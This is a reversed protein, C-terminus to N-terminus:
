LEGQAKHGATKMKESAEEGHEYAREKEQEYKKEADTYARGGKEKVEEMRNEGWGIGDELSGRMLGWVNWLRDEVGEEVGNVIDKLKAWLADAGSQAQVWRIRTEQLLGPRATPVMDEPVGRERLYARLRADPWALYPASRAHIDTYKENALKVLEDRKVQADSSSYGQEILYDRIQNDSWASWFTSAASNYNDQILKMMKDRKIQADSKIINQQVLWQNLQSDSWTSYVSDNIDYYYQSMKNLLYERTYPKPPSPEIINHTVLWEHLYSDSWAQWIPTTVAAYSDRMLNLLHARNKRAEAQVQVGKSELYSRLRNDDWTSYIYDKSDDLTRAADRTAQSAMSSLSQTLHHTTDTARSSLSSAANTYASYRQKALLLLQEKPGKPAIIGQELLFERLRSEDWKDFSTDRIDAFAKQASAYQDYSWASTSNWNQQVLSKLSEPSPSSPLPINHADLWSQLESPSWSSYPPEPSSSSWWSAQSSSILAISLFFLSLKM